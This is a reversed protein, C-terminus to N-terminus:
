VEMLYIMTRGQGVSTIVYDCSPSLPAPGAWTMGVALLAAGAAGTLTM